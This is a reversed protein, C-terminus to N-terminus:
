SEAQYGCFTVALLRGAVAFVWCDDSQQGIWGGERSTIEIVTAISTIAVGKLCCEANWEPV